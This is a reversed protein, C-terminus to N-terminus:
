AQFPALPRSAETAFGGAIAIALIALAVGGVLDIVYHEELLLIAPILVIYYAGLLWVIRRWKRLYWMAIIPIAAHLSPLGIFFDLGIVTPRRHLVFADLSAKVAHSLPIGPLVASHANSLFFPGAAPLFYFVILALYYATLLTGVFQLARRMGYALGLYLICLGVLPFMLAYIWQVLFLAVHPLHPIVSHAFGIVSGGFLVWSDVRNLILDYSGDFRLAAVVDNYSMVIIFGFFFYAAPVIVNALARTFKAHRETTRDFFESIALTDIALVLGRAAGFIWIFSVFSALALIWRLKSRGYRRVIPLVTEQRPFAFLYILASGFISKAALSLWYTELYTRWSFRLPLDAVKFAEILCGAFTLTLLINLILGVNLATSADFDMAFESHRAIRSNCASNGIAAGAKDGAPLEFPTDSLFEPM